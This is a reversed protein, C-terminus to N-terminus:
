ANPSEAAEHLGDSANTLGKLASPRFSARIFINSIMDKSNKNPVM